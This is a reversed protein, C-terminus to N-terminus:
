PPSSTEGPAMIGGKRIASKDSWLSVKGIQLHRMHDKLADM